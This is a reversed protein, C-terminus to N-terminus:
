HGLAPGMHGNPVCSQTQASSYTADSLSPAQFTVPSFSDQSESVFAM